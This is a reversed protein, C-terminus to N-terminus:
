HFLIELGMPRSWFFGVNVSSDTPGSVQLRNALIKWPKVAAARTPACPRWPEDLGEARGNGEGRPRKGASTVAAVSGSRTTM